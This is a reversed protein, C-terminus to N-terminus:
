YGGGGASEAVRHAAAIERIPSVSGLRLHIISITANEPVLALCRAPDRGALVIASGTALAAAIARVLRPRALAGVGDCSDLLIASRRPWVELAVGRGGLDRYLVPRIGHEVEGGDFHLLGAACLLLTTKGAGPPGCVLLVEGGRIEASASTLAVVGATCNGTGAVFSKAVGRLRITARIGGDATM